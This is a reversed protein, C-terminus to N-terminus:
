RWKHHHLHRAIVERAAPSTGAILNQLGRLKEDDIYNKAALDGTSHLEGVVSRLRM